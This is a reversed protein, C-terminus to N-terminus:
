LGHTPATQRFALAGRSGRRDHGGHGLAIGRLAQLAEIVRRMRTRATKVAEAIVRELRGIRGAVYDVEHICDLLTAEQAAQDFHVASEGLDPPGADV